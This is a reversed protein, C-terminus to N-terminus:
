NKQILNKIETELKQIEERVKSCEEQAKLYETKAKQVKTEEKNLDDYKDALKRMKESKSNADSYKRKKEVPPPPQTLGPPPNRVPLPSTPNRAPLPSTPNRAPPPPMPNRPNALHYQPFEPGRKPTNSDELSPQIIPLKFDAVPRNQNGDLIVLIRQGGEKVFPLQDPDRFAIKYFINSKLNRYRYFRDDYRPDLECISLLTKNSHLFMTLGHHPQRSNIRIYFRACTGRNRIQRLEVTPQM